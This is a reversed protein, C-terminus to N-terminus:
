KWRYHCKNCTYGKILGPILGAIFAGAGILLLPLGIFPIWILFLGFSLCMIGLLLAQSKQSMVKYQKCKPCEIQEKM